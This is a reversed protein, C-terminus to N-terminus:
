RLDNEGMFQREGNMVLWGLCVSLALSMAASKYVSLLLENQKKIDEIGEKKVKVEGNLKGLCRKM